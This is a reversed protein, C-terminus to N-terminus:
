SAFGPSNSDNGVPRVPAASPRAQELDAEIAETTRTEPQWEGSVLFAHLDSMAWVGRLYLDMAVTVEQATVPRSLFDKSFTVGIDTAEWGAWDAVIELVKSWALTLNDAIRGIASNEGSRRIEETEAAEAGKKQGELLRAGLVAMDAKKATIARELPMEAGTAFNIVGVESDEPLEWVESGGISYQRKPGDDRGAGRWGGLAIWPQPNGGYILAKEFAASNRYMALACNVIQRLPAANTAATNEQAGLWVWPITNWPQGSRLPTIDDEVQVWSEEQGSEKILNVLHFIRQRYIGGEDLFLERRQRITKHEYRDGNPDEAAEEVVVFVLRGNKEHWNVVAEAPYIKVLPSSGIRQAEALTLGATSGPWDVLIGCRGTQVVDVVSAVLMEDLSTGTGAVDSRWKEAQTPLELRPDKRMLMGVFAEAARSAGEFFYANDVYFEFDKASMGELKPLYAQGKAKITDEGALVDRVRTWRPLAATYDPHNTGISV